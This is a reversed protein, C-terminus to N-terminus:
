GQSGRAAILKALPDIVVDVVSTEEEGHKKITKLARDCLAEVVEDIKQEVKENKKNM